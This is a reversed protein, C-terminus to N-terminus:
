AVPNEAILGHVFPRCVVPLGPQWAENVQLAGLTTVFKWLSSLASKRSGEYFTDALELLQETATQLYPLFAEKVYIFIEGLADAAIEKELQLASNVNLNISEDDDDDDDSDAVDTEGNLLAKAEDETVKEGFDIDEQNLVEIIPPMIQPLVPTLGDKLVAAMVAFFCFASERLRSSDIKMGEFALQFSKEMYPLFKDKGVASAITGLTDTVTGRLHFDDDGTVEKMNFFTHMSSDLYPYFGEKSAHAATGIAAVTLKIELPFVPLSLRSKPM